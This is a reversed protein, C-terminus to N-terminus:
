EVNIITKSSKVKSRAKHAAITEYARSEICTSALGSDNSIGIWILGWLKYQPYYTLSIDGSYDVISRSIIRYRSM